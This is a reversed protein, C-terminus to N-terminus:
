CAIWIDIGPEVMPYHTKERYNVTINTSKGEISNNEYLVNLVDSNSSLSFENYILYTLFKFIFIIVGLRSM